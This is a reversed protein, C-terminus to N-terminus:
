GGYVCLYNKYHDMSHYFRAFHDAEYNLTAVNFHARDHIAASGQTEASARVSEHTNLPNHDGM